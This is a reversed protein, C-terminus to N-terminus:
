WSTEAKRGVGFLLKGEYTGAPLIVEAEPLEEILQTMMHIFGAANFFHRLLERKPYFVVRDCSSLRTQIREQLTADDRVSRIVAIQRRNFQDLISAHEPPYVVAFRDRQEGVVLGRRAVWGALEGVAVEGLLKRQPNYVQIM